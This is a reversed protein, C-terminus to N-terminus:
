LFSIYNILYIRRWVGQDHLSILFPISYAEIPLVCPKLLGDLMIPVGYEWVASM